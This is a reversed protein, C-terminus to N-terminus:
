QLGTETSGGIYHQSDLGNKEKLYKHSHLGNEKINLFNILGKIITILKLALFYKFSDPHSGTFDDEAIM